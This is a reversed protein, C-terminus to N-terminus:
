ICKDIWNSVSHILKIKRICQFCGNGERSLQNNTNGEVTILKDDKLSQIFLIHAIAHKSNFYIGATNGRYGALETFRKVGHVSAVWVNHKKNFWSRAMGNGTAKIGVLKLCYAVFSACWADGTRNGTAAQFANVQKGDNRGTAEKVGIYSCYM